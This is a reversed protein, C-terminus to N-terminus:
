IIIYEYPKLSFLEIAKKIARKRYARDKNSGWKHNEYHNNIREIDDFSIDNQNFIDNVSAYCLGQKNKILNYEHEKIIFDKIYNNTFTTKVTFTKM